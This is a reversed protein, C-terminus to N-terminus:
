ANFQHLTDLTHTMNAQTFKQYSQKLTDPMPVYIVKANHQYAIDQAVKEFSTATGSGFNWIGSGPVKFFRVHLDIIDKVAIFDRRYHESGEFVKIVGTTTAQHTFKTHPSAQDGKHEENPGYVNFYRFLQITTKFANSRCFEKFTTNDTGYVSASSSIQIPIDRKECGWVLEKTFLYNQTILQTTDTATTNSIAGLHIVRDIGHLSYGPDGWEYGHVIHGLSELYPIMNKGIFGNSGTVLIRM